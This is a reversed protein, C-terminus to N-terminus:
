IPVSKVKPESRPSTGSTPPLADYFKNLGKGEEPVGEIGGRGIREMIQFLDGGGSVCM